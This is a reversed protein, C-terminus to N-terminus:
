SKMTIARVNSSEFFSIFSASRLLTLFLLRKLIEDFMGRLEGPYVCLFDFCIGDRCGMFFREDTM